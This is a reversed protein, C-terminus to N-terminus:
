RHSALLTLRYLNHIAWADRHKTQLMYTNTGVTPGTDVVPAMADGAAVGGGESQPLFAWTKLVQGSQNLLRFGIGQLNGTTLGSAFEVFVIVGNGGSKLTVFESILTIWNDNSNGGYIPLGNSGGKIKLTTAGQGAINLTSVADIADATFTGNLTLQDTAANYFLKPAGGTPGFAFGNTDIRVRRGGWNMEIVKNDLDITMQSDASVMRGYLILGMNPNIASLATTRIGREDIITGQGSASYATPITQYPSAVALMPQTLWAYSNAPVAGPVTPFKRFHLRMYAAGAPATAFGSAPVYNSLSPGGGAGSVTNSDFEALTSGTANYFALMMVATCRHAGLRGMFQYRQGAQCPEPDAVWQAVLNQGQFWDNPQYICLTHGGVPRWSSDPYDLVGVTNAGLNGQNFEWGLTTVLTSNALLNASVAVRVAMADFVEAKLHRVEIETSRIHEARLQDVGVMRAQITGDVYMNGAFGFSAVGNITGLVLPYKVGTGDPLAWAFRDSLVIFDVQQGNNGLIIGGVKPGNQSVVRVGWRDEFSPLEDLQELVDDLGEQLQAIAESIHPLTTLEVYGPASRNGGRDIATVWFLYTGAAAPTHVYGIADAVTLVQANALIPGVRVEYGRLPQTTESPTWRLEVQDIWVDGTVIPQAPPLIVLSTTVPASTDGASNVHAAYFVLTGAQLWGLNCTDAKGEFVPTATEWTGGAVGMRIRTAAYDISDIDQPTNWRLVVGNTEVFAALGVVAGVLVSPDTFIASAVTGMRGLGDFPRVEVSWTQDSPVRWALRTGYVNSDILVLPQGAAAAWVQAHDYNGTVDWTASLEHEWGAGVKVRSRTIRLDSAVPLSATLSSGNPAPVYNGNIVYDWFEPGEPVCAIRAGKLDSEPEMSVVRVRYGPTAKFDYCWLTDHAPDDESAGPLDLGAPWPNALTVQDSAATLAEVAFVRYDRYGPLRVGIFAQPMPPVTEDLQLVVKGAVTQASVLRGGYGWQTLDHSISLLSLRRYDLHEIDATYSITKFQYLSQALHYRAMIAAHAESTVGEGTIRAPNLMTTVGPASVRLTQTEWNRDRDLYQYEIGDAANSLSYSVEFSAKLMTAMNAVGSLPQGSSVFVATPRSGDTWSFEGMGALAVEQCFQGLSVADTVWKDYTYGNATCHLMFAKLGEIDIQEDPLGFGFQLDGNAYVGRMTQLLIAGPNSLGNDRTTATAWASGNWIPMPRARYTARVTDLSGSIQGTAKIKIGIRGWDSYDTPDPQITRLVNWGIKCQDKGEGQDWTPAGLRVRVEYQGQAVQLTFTRRMVDATANTLTESLAPLWDSAGVLRQEIYVTVNNVLTNGKPGIDYLQGEFDFQLAIADPSSTRTIWDGDNELEAGTVIDSNSFLPIEESPMGPFGSYYVTVDTYGSFPTDGITLDSASQVNIGGLLILSLYQEDGEFWTYAASAADPTVRKEGWLTPIPQYPRVSNRQGSLSYIARAAAPGSMSPVKPALVKNILATGAIVVGAQIAALTAGASAAVFTGGVAGYIGAAIGASFFTLVAIAIIAIVQKGPMARCAILMGHKPFTRAWMAQPVTAGGIMVTRAGSHIGPVHRELFVALSEGPLLDAPVNRQGDLTAFNPTIVLRGSADLLEAPVGGVAALEARNVEM